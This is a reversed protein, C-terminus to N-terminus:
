LYMFCAIFCGCLMLNVREPGLSKRVVSQRLHAHQDAETSSFFM